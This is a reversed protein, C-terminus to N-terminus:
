RHVLGVRWVEKRRQGEKHLRNMGEPSFLYKFVACLYQRAKRKLKLELKYFLELLLWKNSPDM